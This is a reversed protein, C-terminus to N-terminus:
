VIELDFYEGDKLIITISWGQETKTIDYGSVENSWKSLVETLARRALIVDNSNEAKWFYSGVSENAWYGWADDSRKNIIIDLIIDSIPTADLKIDGNELVLDHCKLVDNYRLM